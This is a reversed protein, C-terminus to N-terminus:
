KQEVKPSEVKAPEKQNDSNRTLDAFVGTLMLTLIAAFSSLNALWMFSSPLDKRVITQYVAILTRGGDLISLPLINMFGLGFSLSAFVLVAYIWGMDYSAKVQQTIGIPSSINKYNDEYKFILKSLSEISVEAFYKMLKASLVISQKAKYAFPFDVVQNQVEERSLKSPELKTKFEFVTTESQTINKLLKSVESDNNKILVITKDPMQSLQMEGMAYFFLGVFVVFAVLFNSVPGALTIWIWKWPAIINASSYDNNEGKMQIKKFKVYGGIPLLSLRFESGLWQFSYIKKGMGLSFIEPEAGLYRGVLFHAFEHIIVLPSFVLTFVGLGVIINMLLQLNVPINFMKLILVGIVAYVLPKILKKM